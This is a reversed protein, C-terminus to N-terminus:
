PLGRKLLYVMILVILFSHSWCMVQTAWVQREIKRLRIDIDIPNM